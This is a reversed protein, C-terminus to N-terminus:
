IPVEGYGMEVRVFSGSSTAGSLEGAVLVPAGRAKGQPLCAFSGGVPAERSSGAAERAALLPTGLHARAELSTEM